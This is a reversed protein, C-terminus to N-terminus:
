ALCASVTRRTWVEVMARKYSESGRQDDSPSCAAAAAAAAAAIRESDPRSGVLLTAAESALIAMGDVGGLAIRAGTVEGDDSVALSVAVGVTPYDDESGPTFRAYRSRATPDFPVTVETVLEDESAATEMFGFFFGSLPVERVGEAGIIRATAGLSMLVPPIDQRPDSHVIAGGLTAVARVRPNGVQGAAQALSPFRANVLASRNLERLTTTAGLRVTGDSSESIGSLGPIKGLYVLREPEILRNKLM